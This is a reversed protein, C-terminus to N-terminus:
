SPLVQATLLEAEVLVHTPLIILQCMGKFWKVIREFLLSFGLFQSMLTYMNKTSYVSIRKRM